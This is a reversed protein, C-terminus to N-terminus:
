VLAQLELQRPGLLLVQQELLELLVPQKPELELRQELLVPQEQRFEEGLCYGM